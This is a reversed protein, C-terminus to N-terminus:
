ETVQVVVTDTSSNGDADSVTLEITWEGIEDVIMASEVTFSCANEIDRLPKDIDDVMNSPTERVVWQYNVIDGNSGCGDFSPSEGVAVRLDDGADASLDGDGGCGAAVFLAATFPIFIRSRPSM